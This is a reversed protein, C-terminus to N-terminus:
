SAGDRTNQPSRRWPGEGRDYRDRDIIHEVQCRNCRGRAIRGEVSAVTVSCPRADLRDGVAISYARQVNALRQRWAKVMRDVVDVSARALEFPIAGAEYAAVEQEGFRAKDMAERIAQRRDYEPHSPDDFRPQDM